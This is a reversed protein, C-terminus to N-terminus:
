VIGDQSSPPMDCTHSASTECSLNITIPAPTVVSRIFLKDVELLPQEIAALQGHSAAVKLIDCQLM